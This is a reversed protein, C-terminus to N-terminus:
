HAHPTSITFSYLSRFSYLTKKEICNLEGESLKKLMKFFRFDSTYKSPQDRMHSSSSPDVTIGTERFNRVTDVYM